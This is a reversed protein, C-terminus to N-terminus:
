KTKVQKRVFHRTKASVREKQSAYGESDPLSLGGSSDSIVPPSTVVPNPQPDDPEFM